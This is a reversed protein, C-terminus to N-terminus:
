HDGSSRNRDAAAPVAAAFLFDIRVTGSDPLVSHPQPEGSLGLLGGRPRWQQFPRRLRHRPPRRQRPRGPLLGRLPQQQQQGLAVFESPQPQENHGPRPLSSTCAAFMRSPVYSFQGQCGALLCGLLLLPFHM